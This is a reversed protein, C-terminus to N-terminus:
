NATEILKTYKKAIDLRYKVSCKLSFNKETHGVPFGFAAPFNYNNVIDKIAEDINKGFPITTDKMDSFSGIILGKLQDFWGARKLQQLMRDAAYIYEGVEEIFLIKNKLDPESVTGISNILM